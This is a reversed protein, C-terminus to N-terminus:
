VEDDHWVDRLGVSEGLSDDGFWREFCYDVCGTGEVEVDCDRVLGEELGSNIPCRAEQASDLLM